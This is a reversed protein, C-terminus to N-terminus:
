CRSVLGINQTKAIQIKAEKNKHLLIEPATHNNARVEPKKDMRKSTSVETCTNVDTVTNAFVM